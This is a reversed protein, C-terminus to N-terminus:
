AFDNVVLGDVLFVNGTPRNGAVSLALGNGRAARSNSFTAASQQGIGPNVGAQLTTLQLWDRGNLPLERVEQEGVLGGLSADTLNVQPAESSVTVEQRIEGLALDFNVAVAAGVTVPVRGRISTQFGQAAAEVQYDGAPVSVIRYTGSSDTVASRVAGTELSKASVTAGTMVAGTSDRVTGFITGNVVQGHMVGAGAFLMMGILGFLAKAKLCSMDRAGRHRM